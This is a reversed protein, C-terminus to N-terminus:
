GFSYTCNSLGILRWTVDQQGEAVVRLSGNALSLLWASASTATGEKLVLHVVFNDSHVMGM